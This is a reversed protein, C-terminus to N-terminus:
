RLGIIEACFDPFLGKYGVELSGLVICLYIKTALVPLSPSLWIDTLYERVGGAMM